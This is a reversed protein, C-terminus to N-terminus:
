DPVFQTLSPAIRAALDTLRRDSDAEDTAPPVVV